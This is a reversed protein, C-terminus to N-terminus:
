EGPRDRCRRWVCPPRAAVWTRRADAKRRAGTGRDGRLAAHVVALKQNREIHLREVVSCVASGLSEAATGGCASLQFLCPNPKGAANFALPEPWRSRLDHM